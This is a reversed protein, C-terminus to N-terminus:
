RRDTVIGAEGYESLLRGILEYSFWTIPYDMGWSNVMKFAQRRDSAGYVCWAHGGRVYGINTSPVWFERGRQEPADFSSYWNTGMLVPDGNAIAARMEDVGTAWRNEVIGHQPEPTLLKFRADKRLHGVARLVDFGARLSTGDYDEGEWEDIKKAETYLWFPDFYGHGRNYILMQWTAGFGVCAGEQGQDQKRRYGYPLALTREVHDVTTARTRIPYKDVHKFDTPEFRGLPFDAM